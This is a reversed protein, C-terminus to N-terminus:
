SRLAELAQRLVTEYADVPVHTDQQILVIRALQENPVANAGRDQIIQKNYLGNDVDRQVFHWHTVTDEQLDM